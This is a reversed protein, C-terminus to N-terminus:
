LVHEREPLVEQRVAASGCRLTLVQRRTFRHVEPGAPLLQHWVPNQRPSVEALLHAQRPQRAAAPEPVRHEPSLLGGWVVARQVQLHTPLGLRELLNREHQLLTGSARLVSTRRAPLCDAQRLPRQPSPLQFLVPLVLRRRGGRPLVECLQVDPQLHRASGPEGRLPGAVGM